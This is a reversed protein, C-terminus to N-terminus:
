LDLSTDSLQKSSKKVSASPNLQLSMYLCSLHYEDSELTNLDQLTNVWSERATPSSAM